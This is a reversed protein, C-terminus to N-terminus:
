LFRPKKTQCCSLVYNKFCLKTTLWGSAIKVCDPSLCTVTAHAKNEKTNIRTTIQRAYLVIFVIAVVVFILLAALLLKERRSSRSHKRTFSLKSKQEIHFAEGYDIKRTYKGSSM